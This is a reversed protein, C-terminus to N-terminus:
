FFALTIAFLAAVTVATGAIYKKEFKEIFDSRSTARKETSFQFM